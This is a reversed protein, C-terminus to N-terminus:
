EGLWEKRQKNLQYRCDAEAEVRQRMNEARTGIQAIAESFTQQGHRILTTIWAQEEEDRRLPDSVRLVFMRFKPALGHWYNTLMHARVTKFRIVWQDIRENRTREPRFHRDFVFGLMRAITETKQIATEVLVSGDPDSLLGPPAELGEDLWEFFKAKGDTRMGICRFRVAQGEPLIGRDILRTVQQVIRPRFQDTQETLLLSSYERWLAKGKQPRVAILGERKNQKGPPRFAVFPDDWVPSGESRWHGMVFLAQAVLAQTHKGCLTCTGAIAQPFLRVRRAPFTLSEIYGVDGVILNKGVPNESTWIAVDREPQATAPQYQRAVLSLALTEFLNDGAPLVYVPPVGNISPRIGPGGSSAFAPVTILGRACCAPCLRHSEDTVHHFHSRNTATPIEPFLYAVPKAEKMVSKDTSTLSVDGAQLFPTTAHFLEFRERYQEAFANLRDKEFSGDRVISAVEDLSQPDYIAQLIAVLLRHVGAVVLPSPDHLAALEPANRLCNGIGVEDTRGDSHTVRIWPEHWLNFRCDRDSM